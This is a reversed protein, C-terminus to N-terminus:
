KPTSAELARSADELVRIIEYFSESISWFVFGVVVLPIAVRALLTLAAYRM